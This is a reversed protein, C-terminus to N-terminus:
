RNQILELYSEVIIDSKEYGIADIFELLLEKVSNLTNQNEVM